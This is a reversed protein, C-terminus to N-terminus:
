SWLDRDGPLVLDARAQPKERDIYDDEESMWKEWQWRAEQGDRVLGRKLRLSRPVDIWISYTLFPRFAERSAGVGELILFESPAVEGWEQHDKNGWDTRRYRASENRALPELVNAVLRPWWNLPNDWSAFDDTHLVPVGGLRGSLLKALTSKGAGGPGDIAIITTSIGPPPEKVELAEVVVSLFSGSVLDKRM